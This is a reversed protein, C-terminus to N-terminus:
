AVESAKETPKFTQSHGDLLGDESPSRYELDILRDLRYDTIEGYGACVVDWRCRPCGM